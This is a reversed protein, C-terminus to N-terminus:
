DITVQFEVTQIGDGQTLDGFRLVVTPAVSTDLEGADVDAADTLSVTNLTLTAAVYTTGAPIVDNFIVNTATGLNAVEVTVTYTLTAGPIPDQNGFQDSVAVSKLINVQVDSVLYEGFQAVQGGSTGLVADVGGDGQGPFGDGPNGIGTAASAALESRGLQANLATGPIDNVLLIDLSVDAALVPDNTGPTYAIDGVSFDGSGDTDFYIAPVAPTPDFDDGALASNIALAFTESGNGTNTLTFLLSRDVDGATVLVQGSQTVVVDIREVVTISAVNSPQTTTTGNLEFTIEAVNDIVTGAATGAAMVPGALLVALSALIWGISSCLGYHRDTM